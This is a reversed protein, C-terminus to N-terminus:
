SVKIENHKQLKYKSCNEKVTFFLWMTLILLLLQLLLVSALTLSAIKVVISKKFFLDIVYFM